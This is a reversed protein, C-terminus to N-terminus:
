IGTLHRKASVAQLQKMTDFQLTIIWTSKVIGSTNSDFEVRVVAINKAPILSYSSLSDEGIGARKLKDAVLWESTEIPVLSKVRESVLLETLEQNTPIGLVVRIREEPSNDSCGSIIAAFILFAALLERHM